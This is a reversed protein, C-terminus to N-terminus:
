WAQRKLGRVFDFHLDRSLIPHSHQRCLAAIWIDNSPLPTGAAKLEGRLRAYEVSTEQDVSLVRCTRLCKELWAEYASKYRSRAIGFRFEGLVIVPIALQTAVKITRVIDPQGDAVASLANTDLILDM